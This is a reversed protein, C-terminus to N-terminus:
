GLQIVPEYAPEPLHIIVRTGKAAGSPDKLDEVIVARGAGLRRTLLRLREGTLQMGLSHHEADKEGAAASRGIGSDTIVCTTGEGNRSFRVQVSREGVKNSLGHWVANEVFPQVLLAPLEMDDDILEPEAEVSYSLGPLRQAEIQLYRRLFDLEEEIGVRDKVSHDLVTRLLRSFGQLYALAEEQHGAQTLRAASNLGNYIFHPNMQSRLLKMELLGNIESIEAHSQELKSNLKELVAAHKRKQRFNRRFLVASILALLAMVISGYLQIERRRLRQQQASNEARLVANDKEKRETEFETRLRALEQQTSEGQLSDKIAIYRHLHDYVGEVDGMARALDGYTREYDMVLEAAHTEVALEHGEAIAKQAKDLQGLELLSSGILRLVYAKDTRSGSREYHGLANTFHTLAKAPFDDMYLGGINEEVLGAGSHDSISIYIEAAQAYNDMASLTDGTAIQLNAISLVCNGVKVKHGLAQEMRLSRELHQLAQKHDGANRYAIGLSYNITAISMSDKTSEADHLARIFYKLALVDKGRNQALWGLNVLTTSTKTPDGIQEAIRLAEQLHIEASDTYGQEVALWGLSNHADVLADPDQIREAILLAQKGTLLASDPNSRILCFSILSLLHSRATDDQVQAYEELFGPLNSADQARAGITCLLM